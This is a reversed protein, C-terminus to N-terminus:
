RPPFSQNVDEGMNLRVTVEEESGSKIADHLSRSMSIIVQNNSKNNLVSNQPSLKLLSHRSHLTTYYYTVYHFPCAYAVLNTRRKRTVNKTVQYGQQWIM